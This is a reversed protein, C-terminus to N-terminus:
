DLLKSERIQAKTEIFNSEEGHIIYVSLGEKGNDKRGGGARLRLLGFM